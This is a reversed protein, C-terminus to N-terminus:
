QSLISNMLELHNKISIKKLVGLGPYQDRRFYGTLEAISENSYPISEFFTVAKEVAERFKKHINTNDDNTVSVFHRVWVEKDNKRYTLHIALAYPLMGGEIYTSSLVTYDTFGDFGDERYYFVEESFKEEAIDCYDSNRKQPKFNDDIRIIEKRLTGLERKFSRNNDAFIVKNVEPMELLEKFDQNNTDVSDQCILMVQQYGKTQIHNSIGKANTNVIYAPIWKDTMSLLEDLESLIIEVKGILDGNQPNLILAFPVNKENLKKLAIKMSNFATKVPEIIPFVKCDDSYKEAFERLALLEFQKGRLYPYYM